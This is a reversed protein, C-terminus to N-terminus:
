STSIGYETLREEYDKTILASIIPDLVGDLIESLNHLNLGIRHETVRNQPFNYTRIKESRDGTKVQLKRQAARKKQREAEFKEKLRARLIRMAKAKNKMQSREDQCQAVVGTPVHTIRVASDTVNM